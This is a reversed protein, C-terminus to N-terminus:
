IEFYNIAGGEKDTTEYLESSFFPVKNNNETLSFPLISIKNSLNNIGVNKSLISLNQFSPEFSFVKINNIKQSALYFLSRHKYWYWFFNSRKEIKLIKILIILSNLQKLNKQLFVKQEEKLKLVPVSFLTKKGNIIKEIYNERLIEYIYFRLNKKKFIKDLIYNVGLIIKAIMKSLLYSM